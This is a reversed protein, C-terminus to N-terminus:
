TNNSVAGGAITHLVGSSNEFHKKKRVQGNLIVERPVLMAKQQCKEFLVKLVNINHIEYNQPTNWGKGRM